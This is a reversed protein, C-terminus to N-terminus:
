YKPMTKYGPAELFSRALTGADTIDQILGKLKRLTQSKITSDTHEWPTLLELLEIKIAMDPDIMNELPTALMKLRLGCLFVTVSKTDVDISETHLGKAAVATLRAHLLLRLSQKLAAM